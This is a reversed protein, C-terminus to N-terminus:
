LPCLVITAMSHWHKPRIRPRCIESVCQAIQAVLLLWPATQHSVCQQFRAQAIPLVSFTEILTGSTGDWIGLTSGLGAAIYWGNPSIDLCNLFGLNPIGLIIFGTESDCIRIFGSSDASIIRVGDPSFRVTNIEGAGPARFPGAVITGANSDWVCIIGDSHGSALRESGDPSFDVSNVDATHEQLPGVICQGSQANWVSITQDDSASAIHAYKSSFCISNIYKLHAQIPGTVLEGTMTDWIELIGQDSAAAIWTGDSSFSMCTIQNRHAQFNTALLALTQSDWTRLTADTSGSVITHGDSSFGVSMVSAAHRTTPGAIITGTCADWVCVTKDDSGSAIYQSNPSFQVSHVPGTHGLLPGAVMNGTTANWVCITQDMSGSVIYAGASYQSFHVSSIPGGHGELPPCVLSCDEINWIRLKGDDCGSVVHSVMSAFDVAQVVGPHPFPGAIHEGTHANWVQFSCDSSASVIQSGNPAFCVCLIPGTHEWLPGVLTEGTKADWIRISKDDSGSAIYSGCPSFKVSRVTSSHGRFPPIALAGASIDWLRIAGDLCGYAIHVNEPALDVTFIPSPVAQLLQDRNPWDEALTQPRLTRSFTKGFHQKIPSLAPAFPLASLYIHPASSQMAPSFATVLTLTDAVFSRLQDQNSALKLHQAAAQLGAKADPIQGLLSMVELWHLVHNLFFVELSKLAVSDLQMEQVHAFLFCASYQLQPSVLLNIREVLNFIDANMVHSDELKCINFKLESHLVRLCTSALVQHGTEADMGWPTGGSRNSDTLYDVFSTHLVRVMEGPKWHLVCSLHDLVEACHQQLLNEMTINTMPTRGFALCSLVNRADKSFCPDDWPASNQLAVSYLADLNFGEQRNILEDLRQQPRYRSIFRM